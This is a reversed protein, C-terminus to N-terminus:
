HLICLKRDTAINKSAKANFGIGSCRFLRLWIAERTNLEFQKQM